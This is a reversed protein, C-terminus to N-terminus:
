LEATREMRGEEILDASSITFAADFRARMKRCLEITEATVLKGLPSASLSSVANNALASELTDTVFQRVPVRRISAAHELKRHLEESVSIEMACEPSASM